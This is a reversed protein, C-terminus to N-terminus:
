AANPRQKPSYGCTCGSPRECVLHGEDDLEHVVVVSGEIVLLQRDRVRDYDRLHIAMAADGEERMIRGLPRGGAKHLRDIVGIARRDPCCKYGSAPSPPPSSAFARHDACAVAAVARRCEPM